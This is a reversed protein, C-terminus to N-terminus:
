SLYAWLVQNNFASEDLEKRHKKLLKRVFETREMMDLAGVRVTEVGKRRAELTKACTGSDLCSIM